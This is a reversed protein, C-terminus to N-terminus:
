VAAAAQQQQQQLALLPLHLLLLGAASRLTQQKVAASARVATRVQLYLQVQQQLLRAAPQSSLLVHM